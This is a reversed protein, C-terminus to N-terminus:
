LLTEIPINERDFYEAGLGGRDSLASDLVRMVEEPIVGRM